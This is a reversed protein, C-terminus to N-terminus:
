VVMMINFDLCVRDLLKEKARRGLKDHSKSTSSFDASQYVLRNTGSSFSRFWPCHALDHRVLLCNQRKVSDTSKKKPPTKREISIVRTIRVQLMSSKLTSASM